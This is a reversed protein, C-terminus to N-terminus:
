QFPQNVQELKSKVEDLLEGALKRNDSSLDVMEEPDNQIDYLEIVDGGAPELETYGYYYVLKYSEKILVISGRDLPLYKKNSRIYMSYVGRDGRADGPRFPPLVDGECWGPIDQGALHLLTPLLDINSVPTYVDERTSRGPEFVIMPIRIVPQSLAPTTHGVIGREFMEGHDSTLIVFTDELLGSGEMFDIIRGFEQDVYLLYEDYKLRMNLMNVLSRQASFVHEPKEPTKYGDEEFRGAYDRRTAYPVHPPFFHFYGVFPKPASALLNNLYDTAHELLFFNGRVNPVGRPFDPLYQNLHYERYKEHLMEYFYSLFLSYTHSSKRGEFARVWGVNAIDEDSNFLMDLSRDYFFFLKERATLDEINGAFQELLTNALPNHTYAFRHYGSFAHFLNQSLFSRDVTENHNFARHTWPYAGCFLSATGPTTFNGASITNHYVIARDALRALNPMTERPYGFLPVNHASLADYVIILINKGDTVEGAPTSVSPAPPAYLGLSFLGTLKLFERRTLSDRM